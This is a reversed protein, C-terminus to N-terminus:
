LTAPIPRRTVLGHQRLDLLCCAGEHHKGFEVQTSVLNATPTQVFCCSGGALGAYSGETRTGLEPVQKGGNALISRQLISFVSSGQKLQAGKRSISLM